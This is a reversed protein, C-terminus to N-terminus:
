YKGHSRLPESPGEKVLKLIQKQAGEPDPIHSFEFNSQEGATQIFLDGYDFLNQFVGGKTFSVDQVNSLTTQSIRRYFLNHFDIDVLRKNTLIYINFYWGLFNQFVFGFTAIYLAAAFLQGTLFSVPLVTAAASFVFTIFFPLTLLFTATLIWDLNTIPHARLLILVKEGEQEGEFFINKPVLDQM